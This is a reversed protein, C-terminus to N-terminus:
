KQEKNKNTRRKESKDRVIGIVQEGLKLMLAGWATLHSTKSKLNELGSEISTTIKQIGELTQNINKLTKAMQYLLWALFLAVILVSFGLLWNLIDQSTNFM